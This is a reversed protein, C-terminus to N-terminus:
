KKVTVQLTSIKHSGTLYNKLGDAEFEMTTSSNQNNGYSVASGSANYGYFQVTVQDKLEYKDNDNIAPYSSKPNAVVQIAAVDLAKGVEISKKYTFNETITQTNESGDVGTYTVTIDFYDYWAQSLTVTYGVEVKAVANPDVPDDDDDDGGCATFSVCMMMALVAVFAKWLINRKM